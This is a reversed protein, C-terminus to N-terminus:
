LKGLRWLEKEFQVGEEPPTGLRSTRRICAATFDCATQAACTLEKGALLGGLLVASFLDGTGPYAGPEMPACPFSLKGSKRDLCAAGLAGERPSFGTVAVSRSGGRSLRELWSPIAEASPTCAPDEGLLLAAETLNPTILNALAALEQLKACMAANYTRYLRGHDGMVPDVLVLTDRGRFRRIFDGARDIQEESSLFGITIGQFSFGLQAWHEATASLTQTLDLWVAKESPPFGTHASLWATPLPCCQVGMVSLVPLIVSLSCRGLGSLDHIAAARPSADM